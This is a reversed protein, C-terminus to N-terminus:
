RSLKSTKGAGSSGMLATMKGAEVVGDIGKLLELKDDSTSAQVTYHIDKFTLDVRPFPIEVPELLGEDEEAGEEGKDTILSQGTAFRVSSLFYVSALIALGSTMLAFLVGWGAWEITYPEDDGDVFGFQILIAEGQTITENTPLVVPASYRGSDFENVVLARFTWAFYNMWYVWIWYAPIVDPQVTFGSFLVFVVGAIAMAGQATTVDQICSSFVSFFFGSTLSVSFMIAVFVFYNAVSAGGNYALGVLFYVMTGYICSDVLAWPISAVSRGAIYTWTPFFNADQQKYFISRTPFQGPIAQMAAIACFFMSQFLVGMVSGPSEGGQQFFLTGVVVGIILDQALKSKIAYKDRWWLLLERSGVLKLSEFASNQYQRKAVECVMSAGDGVPANVQEMLAKGFDSEHFKERFEEPSFHKKALANYPVDLDVEKLYQVGDKTPLAQLWDAVDMREPIKYGLSDFYDVVDEVPGFYIVKGEHVLILEDFNAVTEPPPQLLSVIKISETLRSALAMMRTIDFTTQSDLGTSIEDCCIVPRTM